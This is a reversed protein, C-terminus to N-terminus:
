QDIKKLEEDIMRRLTSEPADALDVLSRLADDLLKRAGEFKGLRRFHCGFAYALPARMSRDIRDLKPAVGEWGDTGLVGQWARILKMADVIDIRKTRFARFLDDHLAKWLIVDAEGAQDDFSAKRIIESVVLPIQIDSIERSSIERFAYKRAYDRGRQNSWMDRMATYYEDAFKLSLLRANPFQEGFNGAVLNIMSNYDDVSLDRSLSALMAISLQSMQSPSKLRRYGESWAGAADSESVAIFGKLIWADALKGILLQMHTGPKGDANGSDRVRASAREIFDDLLRRAETQRGLLTMARAVEVPMIFVVLEPWGPATEISHIQDLADQVRHNRLLYSAYESALNSLREAQEDIGPGKWNRVDLVIRFLPEVM